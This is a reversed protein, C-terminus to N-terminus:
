ADDFLTGFIMELDQKDTTGLELVGRDIAGLMATEKERLRQYINRDLSWGADDAGPFVTQM